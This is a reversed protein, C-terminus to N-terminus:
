RGRWVPGAIYGLFGAVALGLLYQPAPAEVAVAVAPVFAILWLARM